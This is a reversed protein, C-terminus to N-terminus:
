KLLILKKKTEKELFMLVIPWVMKVFNVNGTIYCFALQNDYRVNIDKAFIKIFKRSFNRQTINSLDLLVFVKDSGTNIKSIEIAKYTKERVVSMYYDYNSQKVFYQLQVHVLGFINGGYEYKKISILHHLRFDEATKLTSYDIKYDNNNDLNEKLEAATLNTKKIVSFINDDGVADNKHEQINDHNKFM